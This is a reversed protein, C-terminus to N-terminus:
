LDTYNICDSAFLINGNEYYTKQSQFNGPMTPQEPFVPVSNVNCNDLGSGPPVTPWRYDPVEPCGSICGCRAIFGNEGSNDLVIGCAIGFFTLRCARGYKTLGGCRSLLNGKLGRDPDPWLLVNIGVIVGAGFVGKGGITPGEYNARCWAVCAPDKRLGHIDVYGLPDNSIFQYLFIGGSEGIPDRNLWRQISPDYFASASQGFLIGILTLVM